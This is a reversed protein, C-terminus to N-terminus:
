AGRQKALEMVHEPTLAHPTGIIERLAVLALGFGKPMEAALGSMSIGWGSLADMLAVKARDEQPLESHYDRVLDVPNEEAARLFIDPWEAESLTAM